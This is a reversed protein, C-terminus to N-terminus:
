SDQSAGQGHGLNPRKQLPDLPPVGPRTSKKPFFRRHSWGCPFSEDRLMHERFKNPVVVKWCKTRLPTGDSSPKTMCTVELIQLPEALKVEAPVSESCKILVEKIIEETSAPNTNGIFVEYPAAEGGAVTIESKGYNVKRPKRQRPDVWSEEIESEEELKRKSDLRDRSQPIWSLRSQSDIRKRNTDAKFVGGVLGTQQVGGRVQGPGHATHEVRVQQGGHHGVGGAVSAFTANGKISKVHVALDAVAKELGSLKKVEQELSLMRAGMAISDKNSLAATAPVYKLDKSSVVFSPRTVEDGQELNYMDNVLEEATIELANKKEGQNRHKTPRKKNMIEALRVYAEFVQEFEFNEEILRRAEKCSTDCVWMSVTALLWNNEVTGM